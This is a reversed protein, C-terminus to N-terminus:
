RKTTEAEIDQIDQVTLMLAKRKSQGQSSRRFPDFDPRHGRELVETARIGEWQRACDMLEPLKLRNYLKGFKGCEIRHFIEEWEEITMAPFEMMLADAVHALEEDNRITTSADVM